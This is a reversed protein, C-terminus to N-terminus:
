RAQFYNLAAPLAHLGLHPQLRLLQDRAAEHLLVEAHRLAHQEEHPQVIRPLHHELGAAPRDARVVFHAQDVVFSALYTWALDALQDAAARVGQAAVVAHRFVVGLRERAVAKIARAIEHALVGRAIVHDLPALLVEDVAAALFDAGLLDLVQDKRM